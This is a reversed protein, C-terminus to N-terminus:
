GLKAEQCASDGVYTKNGDPKYLYGDVCAYGGGLKAEKCDSDGVYTKNGDPKYLYGDVCAYGNTHAFAVSSSFLLILSLLLTKM